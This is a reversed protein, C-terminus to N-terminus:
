FIVGAFDQFDIFVVGPPIREWDEQFSARKHLHVFGGVDAAAGADNWTPIGCSQVLPLIRIGLVELTQLSM